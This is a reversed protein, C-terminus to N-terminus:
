AAITGTYTQLTQRACREWTFASARRLGEDTLKARLASPEGLEIMANAIAESSYADVTLAAGGAVEPLCSNDSTIVPTGCAMAEIIPLGFGEWLSPFVFMEAASYLAPAEEHRVYGLEVIDSEFGTAAISADLSDGALWQRAGALVLQYELKTERRFRAFAEIIRYINKRETLKGLYLLYPRTLGYRERVTERAEPDEIPRFRPDVGHYVVTFHELPLGFREATLDRVNESVCIVRRSKRLGRVILANLRRLVSPDYFEPHAFSSFCHHTFVYRRPCFPPPTFVAHLLDIGHRALEVPLSTSLAIWRNSPWLVHFRFNDQSVGFSDVAEKSFCFVHYENERDINALSQVLAHEYTAPGGAERGAMVSFIGLRMM